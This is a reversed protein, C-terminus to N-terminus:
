NNYINLTMPRIFSNPSCNHNINSITEALYYKNNLGFINCIKKEYAIDMYEQKKNEFCDEENWKMTRPYLNNFLDENFYILHKMNQNNVVHECLLLEGYNIDDIAIIKRNHSDTDVKLKPSIYITNTYKHM